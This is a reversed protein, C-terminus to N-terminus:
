KKIEEIIKEACSYHVEYTGYCGNIKLYMVRFNNHIEEGCVACTLKNKKKFMNKIFNIM